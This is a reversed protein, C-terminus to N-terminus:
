FPIRLDNVPPAKVVMAEVFIANDPLWKRFREPIEGQHWLNSTEIIRGDQFLITFKRGGFGRFAGPDDNGLRYHQRDVIVRRDEDEDSLEIKKIWFSCNFCNNGNYANPECTRSFERGCFECIKIKKITNPM